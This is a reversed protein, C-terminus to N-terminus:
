YTDLPTKGKGSRTGAMIKGDHDDLDDCPRIPQGTGKGSRSVAKWKM